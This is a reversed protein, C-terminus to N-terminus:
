LSAAADLHTGGAAVFVGIQHGRVSMEIGVIPWAKTCTCVSIAPWDREVM